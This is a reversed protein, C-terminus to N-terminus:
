GEEREERQSIEADLYLEQLWFGPARGLLQCVVQLEPPLCGLLIFLSRMFIIHFYSHRAYVSLLQLWYVSKWSRGAWCRFLFYNITQRHCFVVYCIHLRSRCYILECFTICLLNGKREDASHPVSRCHQLEFTFHCQHLSILSLFM